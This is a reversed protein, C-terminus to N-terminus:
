LEPEETQQQDQQQLEQYTKAGHKLLLEKMNMYDHYREEGAMVNDDVNFSELLQLTIDLCTVPELPDDANGMKDFDLNPDAHGQELLVRANEVHGAYVNWSLPTMRLGSEFKSRIDANVGPQQLLLKTVAPQGYISAVHLCTEGQPSRGNTWNPHEQLLEQVEDVRGHTCADLFKPSVMVVREPEEKRTPQHNNNDDNSSETASGLSALIMPVVLWWTWSNKKTMMMM